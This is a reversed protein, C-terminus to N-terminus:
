KKLPVKEDLRRSSIYFSWESKKREKLSTSINIVTKETKTLNKAFYPYITCHGWFIIECNTWNLGSAVYWSLKLGASVIFMLYCQSSISIKSPTYFYIEYSPTSKRPNTSGLPSFTAYSCLCTFELVMQQFLNCPCLSIYSVLTYWSHM